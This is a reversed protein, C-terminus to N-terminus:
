KALLEEVEGWRGSAESLLLRFREEKETAAEWAEDDRLEDIASEILDAMVTPELADLEWSQRGHTAIYGRARSDTVKAPNPPPGYQEIQDMNLALRNVEFRPEIWEISERVGQGSGEMGYRWHDIVLFKRLREEIDRTMDIGSPDHDGLHLVVVKEVSGGEEPGPLSPENDANFYGEIRQAAQWLSSASTYGRCSFYAARREGAARSIVGALAEKEVWVEVRSSQGQWRPLFHSSAAGRITDAPTKVRADGGQSRRTRDVIHNWDFQGALRADNLIDGLKSYETDKNAILGRAVFQYYLQRLTLDYGQGAYTAAIEEAQEIVRMRAPSINIARYRIKM